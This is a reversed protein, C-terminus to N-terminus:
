LSGLRGGGSGIIACRKKCQFDIALSIEFTRVEIFHRLVGTARNLPLCKFDIAMPFNDPLMVSIVCIGM